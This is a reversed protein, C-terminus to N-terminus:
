LPVIKMTWDGGGTLDFYYDGKINYLQTSGSHNENGQFITNTLLDGGFTSRSTPNVHLVFNGGFRGMKSTWELTYNGNLTVPRTKQNDTGSLTVSPRAVTPSPAVTAPANTRAVDTPAGSTTALVPAAGSATTTAGRSNSGAAGVGVVFGVILRVLAVLFTKM